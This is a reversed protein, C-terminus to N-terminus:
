PDPLLLPPSPDHPLTITTDLGHAAFLQRYRAANARRAATWRDLHRLKVTVIAAQIADLRCNGGILKHHYKPKSGHARLIRLREARQADQTTVLGGDGACGLNKSPFFSFCGYHGM